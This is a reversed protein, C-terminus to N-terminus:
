KGCNDDCRTTHELVTEVEEFFDNPKGGSDPHNIDTEMTSSGMLIISKKHTNMQTIMSSRKIFDVTWGKM